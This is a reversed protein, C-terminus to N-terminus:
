KDRKIKSNIINGTIADIDYEYKMNGSRFEIEYVMFGDEKDLDVELKKVNDEKVKANSFSISKAKEIGIYSDFNAIKNSLNSNKVKFSLIAGTKANIDYEYKKNEQIIEVEYIYMGDERDIELNVIRDSSNKLKSDELAISTAKEFGIYSDVISKTLNKSAKKSISIINGTTADIDYEYKKASDVFDIEYVYLGDDFDFKEKIVSINKTSVKANKVCIEKADEVSIFDSNSVTDAYVNTGILCVLFVIVFGINIIIKKYNCSTLM